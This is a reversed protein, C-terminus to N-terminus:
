GSRPRAAAIIGPGSLGIFLDTGELVDAPSGSRREDNTNEALWTKPANMSGAEYDERGAHIAGFRDCAM